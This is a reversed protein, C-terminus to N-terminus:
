VVVESPGGRRALVRALGLELAVAALIVLSPEASTRFRTNGYVAAGVLVVLVFPALLVLLEVWRDRRRLLVVGLVAAPILLWYMVLGLRHFRVQRGEQSAFFAGQGWPRYLDLMRGLRAAVVAPIRGKHESAYDFGRERYQLAAQAEDGTVPGGFCRFDWSGVIEGFYTSECNAGAFVSDGNTSLLVPREFTTVNRIAWPALVLAAAALCAAGLTVRRRMSGQGGRWLLPAALLVGLVIAEGRALAALAIVGGLLAAAGPGPHDALRFAVLGCLVFLLTSTTESMLAADALWLMPYIAALAAAILGVREGGVRRGLLGALLVTVSGVVGLLYKQGPLSGVGVLDFGALLVIHGPPHEATPVDEFLRRFGEGDALFGAEAHYTLADGIVPYDRNSYAALLRVALALLTVAALSLRFSPM